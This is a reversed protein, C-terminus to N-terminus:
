HHYKNHQIADIPPPIVKELDDGWRLGGTSLTRYMLREAANSVKKHEKRGSLVMVLGGPRLADAADRVDLGPKGPM